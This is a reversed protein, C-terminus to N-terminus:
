LCFLNGTCLFIGWFTRFIYVFIVVFFNCFNRKSFFFFVNWRFTKTWKTESMLWVCKRYLLFNELVDLFTFLFLLLFNCFIRKFFFFFDRSFSIRLPFTKIWKTERLAFSFLYIQYFIQNCFLHLFASNGTLFFTGIFIFERNFFVDVHHFLLFEM